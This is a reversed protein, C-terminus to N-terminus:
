CEILQSSIVRSIKHNYPGWWHRCKQKCFIIALEPAVSWVNKQFFCFRIGFRLSGFHNKHWLSHDMVLKLPRKKLVKVSGFSVFLFVLWEVMQVLMTFSLQSYVQHFFFFTGRQLKGSVHTFSHQSHDAAKPIHCSPHQLKGESTGSCHFAGSISLEEWCFCTALRDGSWVFFFIDVFGPIYLIKFTAWNRLCQNEMQVHPMRPFTWNLHHNWM